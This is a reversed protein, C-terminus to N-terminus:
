PDPFFIPAFWAQQDVPNADREREDGAACVRMVYFQKFGHQVLEKYLHRASRPLVIEAGIGAVLARRCQICDNLPVILRVDLLSTFLSVVLQGFRSELSASPHHHSRM